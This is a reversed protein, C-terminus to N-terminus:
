FAPAAKASPLHSGSGWWARTTGACIPGIGPVSCLVDDPWYERWLISAHASALVRECQALMDADILDQEGRQDGHALAALGPQGRVRDSVGRRHGGGVVAVVVRGHTRGGGFQGRVAHAPRDAHGDRGPDTPGPLGHGGGEGRIAVQHAAVVAADIGISAANTGNSSSGNLESM